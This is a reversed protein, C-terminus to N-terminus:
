TRKVAFYTGLRTFTRRNQEILHHHHRSKLQSIAANRENLAQQLSTSLKEIARAAQNTLACAADSEWLQNVLQSHDPCPELPIEQSAPVPPYARGGCRENIENVM